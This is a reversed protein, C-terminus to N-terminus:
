AERRGGWLFADSVVLVAAEIVQLLVHHQQALVSLCEVELTGQYAGVHSDHWRGKVVRGSIPNQKNLKSLKPQEVIASLLTGKRLLIPAVCLQRGAPHRDQLKNKNYPTKGGLTDPAELPM